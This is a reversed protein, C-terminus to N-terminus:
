LSKRSIEALDIMPCGHKLLKGGLMANEVVSIWLQAFGYINGLFDWKSILTPPRFPTLHSV